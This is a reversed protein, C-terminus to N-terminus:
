VATSAVVEEKVGNNFLHAQRARLDISCSLQDADKSDLVFVLIKVKGITKGKEIEARM